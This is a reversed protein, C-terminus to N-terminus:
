REAIRACRVTQGFGAKLMLSPPKKTPFSPADLISQM